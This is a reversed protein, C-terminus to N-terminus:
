SPDTIRVNGRRRGFALPGRLTSVVDAALVTLHQDYGLDSYVVLPQTVKEIAVRVDGQRTRYGSQRETLQDAHM